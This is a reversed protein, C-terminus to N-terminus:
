TKVGDKKEHDLKETLRNYAAPNTYWAQTCLMTDRDTGEGRRRRRAANEVETWDLRM